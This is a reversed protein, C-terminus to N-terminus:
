SAITASFSGAVNVQRDERAPDAAVFGVADLEFRGVLLRDSAETVTLWGSRGHFAGTPKTPRGTIVLAIVEDEANAAASIRYRGVELPAGRRRTFLIASQEGRVGLSVVFAESSGDAGNVTGFEAEGWTHNSIVGNVEARFSSRTQAAPWRGLLARSGEIPPNPSSTLKAARAPHEVQGRLAREGTVRSSPSANVGETATPAAIRYGRTYSLLASEPAQAQASSALLLSATFLTTRFM